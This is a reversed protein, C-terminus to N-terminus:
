LYTPVCDALQKAMQNAKVNARNYFEGYSSHVKGKVSQPKFVGTKGSFRITARFPFSQNTLGVSLINSDSYVFALSTSKDSQFTFLQGVMPASINDLVCQQAAAYLEYPEASVAVKHSKLKVTTAVPQPIACGTLSILITAIVLKKM